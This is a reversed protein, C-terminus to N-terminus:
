LGVKTLHEELAEDYKEFANSMINRWMQTIEEHYEFDHEAIFATFSLQTEVYNGEQTIALVDIVVMPEGKLVCLSVKMPLEVGKYETLFRGARVVIEDWQKDTFTTFDFDKICHFNEKTFGTKMILDEKDYIVVSNSM